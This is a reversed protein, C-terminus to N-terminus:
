EYKPHRCPDLVTISPDCARVGVWIKRIATSTEMKKGYNSEIVEGDPIKGERCDTLFHQPFNDPLGTGSLNVHATFTGRNFQRPHTSRQLPTRGSWLQCHLVERPLYMEREHHNKYTHTAVGVRPVVGYGRSNRPTVYLPIPHTNKLYRSLFPPSHTHKEVLLLVALVSCKSANEGISPRIGSANACTTFFHPFTRFLATFHSFPM